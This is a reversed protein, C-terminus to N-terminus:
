AAEIEGPTEVNGSATNLVSGRVVANSGSAPNRTGGVVVAATGTASNTGGVIVRSEGRPQMEADALLPPWFHVYAATETIEGQPSRSVSHSGGLEACIRVASAWRCVEFLHLVVPNEIRVWAVHWKNIERKAKTFRRMFAEDHMREDRTVDPDDKVAAM